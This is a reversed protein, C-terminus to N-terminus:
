RKGGDINVVSFAREMCFQNTQKYATHIAWKIMCNCERELENEFHIKASSKKEIWNFRVM